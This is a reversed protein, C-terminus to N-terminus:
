AGLKQFRLQPSTTISTPVPLFPIVAAKAGNVSIQATVNGGPAADVITVTYDGAAVWPPLMTRAVTEASAASRDGRAVTAAAYRAAGTMANYNYFLLAYQITGFAMTMMIPLLLSFEFAAAGRRDRAAQGALRLCASACRRAAAISAKSDSLRFRM